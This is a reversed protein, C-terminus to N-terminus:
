SWRVLLEGGDVLFGLLIHARGVDPATGGRFGSKVARTVDAPHVVLVAIIHPAGGGVAQPVLALVDALGFCLGTVKNEELSRIIGRPFTM